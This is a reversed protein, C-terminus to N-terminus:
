NMVLIKATAVINSSDATSSAMIYYVGTMVRQHDLGTVDWQASGNNNELECVLQGAADVIKVIANEPLGDITVYGYYDPAVPNPFVRLTTTGNNNVGTGAPIFEAIGGGTSILLSGNAENAAIAYIFDSPIYSNDVNFEDIIRRGDNSTCVLGAGATGFWKRGQNDQTIDFVMVENLLYDALNTGDNRAVKIRNVRTPDTFATRANLTVVGFAGGIWVLGTEPDEFITQTDYLNVKGGDQDYPNCIIVYKDDSTDAPTGNHNYITIASGATYSMSYIVVMNKNLPHKLAQIIDNNSGKLGKIPFRTFGRFDKAGTTALRDAAPWLVLEAETITNGPMVDINNYLTVLMGDADFSPTAVRCMSGWAEPKPFAPIFTDIWNTAHNPRTLIMLGDELKEFNLKLLGDFFSGRYICSPDKPDIAIGSYNNGLMDWFNGLYIPSHQSWLGDKLSSVLMPFKQYTFDTFAKEIGMSGVIMGYTPHYAIDGSVFTAAANPAIYDHTLTWSLSEDANRETKFQRIGKRPTGSWVTTGDWTSMATSEAAYDSPLVFSKVTGDKSIFHTAALESVVMGDKGCQVNYFDGQLLRKTTVSRKDNNITIYHIIRSPSTNKDYNSYGAAIFTKDDIVYINNSHQYGGMVWYDSLSTRPDALPAMAIKEDYAILLYEGLRVINRLNRGYNRSEKVELKQDDLCVYGFDTALWILNREPDFSIRRVTTTGPIDSLRLAAINDVKGNDYVLDINLNDYIVLLYKHEPNYAIHEINTESLHNVKSLLQIEDGKKDYYFLNRRAKAITRSNSNQQQALGTFYVREPTEVMTTISNDFTGHLKWDGAITASASGAAIICCALTLITKLLRNM